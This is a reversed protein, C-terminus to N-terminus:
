GNWTQYTPYLELLRDREEALRTQYLGLYYQSARSAASTPVLDARETSEIASQQLRASEYAPLLRWCAGFVILDIMRDELGTTMSFVDENNVMVSPKKTYIVRVNRGPVIFDRMVQRTKGTPTPTPLVQGSTTSAQPNFRWSSNPFLVGSPGITNATM